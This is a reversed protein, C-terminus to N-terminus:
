EINVINVTRFSLTRPAPDRLSAFRADGIIGVIELDEKEGVLRIRQGIAAGGGPLQRALTQNVMAVRPSNERDAAALDRGALIPIGMTEPHRPPVFHIHVGVENQGAPASPVTIGDRTAGGTLLGSRTFSVASVGPIAGLRELAREYYDLLRTGEYGNATPDVRFTLLHDPRFGFSQSRLNVLTRLFLGAGVVLVLSLAVQVAILTKGAFLRSSETSRGAVTRTLGSTARIRTARWAPLAGFLLAVVFSLGGAFLWLAPGFGLPLVIPPDDQNLLPLLQNRIVLAIM